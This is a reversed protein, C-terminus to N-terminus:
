FSIFDGTYTAWVFCAWFSPRGGLVVAVRRGFILGAVSVEKDGVFGLARLGSTGRVSSPCVGFPM